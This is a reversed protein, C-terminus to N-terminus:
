LLGELYTMRVSASEIADRLVVYAAWPVNPLLVRPEESSAARAQENQLPAVAVM